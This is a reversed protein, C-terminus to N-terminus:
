GHGIEQFSQKGSFYITVKHSYLENDFVFTKKMNNRDFDLIFM